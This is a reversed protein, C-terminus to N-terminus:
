EFFREHSVLRGIVEHEDAVFTMEVKSRPKRLMIPNDGVVEFLQVVGATRISLWRGKRVDAQSAPVFRAIDGAGIGIDELGEIRYSGVGSEKTSEGIFVGLPDISGALEAEGGDEIFLVWPVALAKAIRRILGVGARRHTPRDPKRLVNYITSPEVGLSKILDAPEVGLEGLVRSLQASIDFTQQESRPPQQTMAGIMALPRDPTEVIRQGCCVAQSNSQAAPM